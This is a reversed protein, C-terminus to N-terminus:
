QPAMTAVDNGEEGEGSSGRKGQLEAVGRAECSRLDVRGAVGCSRLKASGRPECSRRESLQAEQGRRKAAESSRETWSPM